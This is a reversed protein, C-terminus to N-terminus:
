VRHTAYQQSGSESRDMTEKWIEINELFIGTGRAVCTLPDDAREVKLGTANAIATDMERLLSGGGCIRLGNDILDAALEPEARELTMMVTDLIAAIPGKLAERIEESTVIIKRPMGSITDRGAVEMTLEKELPVASGIQMKVKEARAEGVLLNYTKKLHNIIAEDMADGGVRVSECSAVDALSMIAVDTTGGGIDVIM